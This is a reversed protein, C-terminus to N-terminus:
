IFLEYNKKTCCLKKLIIKIIFFLIFNIKRIHQPCISVCRMCSICKFTNVKKSNNLDIAQVPCKKGCLGCNNCNKNPKPIIKFNKIKKYPFNGSINIETNEKNFIKNKIITSFNLLNAIDNKDPRNTAIKNIISHKSIASIAAIVNFNNKQVTDKLEILTDDYSRNGYVTILIATAGNGKITSLKEIVLSPARGNFSPTSIIVIDSKQISFINLDLLNNSLDIGITKQSFQRAFISSINKTGGTPSFYIEYINM